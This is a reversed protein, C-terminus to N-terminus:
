SLCLVQAGASLFGFLTNGNTPPLTGADIEQPLLQQIANGQV